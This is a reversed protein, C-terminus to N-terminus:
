FQIQDGCVRCTKHRPEDVSDGDATQVSAILSSAAITIIITAVITCSKQQQKDGPKRVDYTFVGGSAWVGDNESKM